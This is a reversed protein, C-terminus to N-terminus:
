SCMQRCKYPVTTAAIRNDTGVVVEERILIHVFQVRSCLEVLANQRDNIASEGIAGISELNFLHYNKIQNMDRRYVIGRNLRSLKESWLCLILQQLQSIVM